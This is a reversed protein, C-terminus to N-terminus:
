DTYRITYCTYFSVCTIPTLLLIIILYCMFTNCKMKIKCTSHYTNDNSYSQGNHIFDLYNNNLQIFDNHNYYKNSCNYICETEHKKYIYKLLAKDIFYHSLFTDDPFYGFKIFLLLSVHNRFALVSNDPLKRDLYMQKYYKCDLKECDKDYYHFVNKMKDYSVSNIGLILHDLKCLKLYLRYIGIDADNLKYRSCSIDDMPPYMSNKNIIIKNIIIWYSNDIKIEIDIFVKGSHNAYKDFTSRKSIGYCKISEITLLTFLLYKTFM